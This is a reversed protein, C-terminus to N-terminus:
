APNFGYVLEVTEEKMVKKRRDYLRTTEINSHNLFASIEAEPIGQEYM